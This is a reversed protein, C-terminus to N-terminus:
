LHHPVDSVPECRDDPSAEKFVHSPLIDTIRYNGSVNQAYHFLSFQEFSKAYSTHVSFPNTQQRRAASGM